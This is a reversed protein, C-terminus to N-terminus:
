NSRSGIGMDALVSKIGLAESAAKTAAYSEAEGSSTAVCGQDKSWSKILHAGLRMTGGSTSKRTSVDGAWDSDSQVMIKDVEDQWRFLQIVRPHAKIYRGVKKMSEWSSHTPSSMTKSCQKIALQVDPRDHGLYNGSATVSRYAKSRKKLLSKTKKVM